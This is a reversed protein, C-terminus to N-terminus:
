LKYTAIELALSERHYSNRKKKKKVRAVVASEQNRDSLHSQPGHLVSLVLTPVDYHHPGRAGSHAAARIEQSELDRYGARVHPVGGLVDHHRPARTVAACIGPPDGTAGAAGVAHGDTPLM